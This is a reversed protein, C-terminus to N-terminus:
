TSGHWPRALGPPGRACCARTRGSRGPRGSAAKQRPRGRPSRSRPGANRLRGNARAWARSRASARCSMPRPRARPHRPGSRWAAVRAGARPLPLPLYLYLSGGVLGRAQFGSGPTPPRGPWENLMRPRSSQLPASCRTVGELDLSSDPAPPRRAVLSRRKWFRAPGTGAGSCGVSSRLMGSQEVLCAPRAPGRWVQRRACVRPTGWRGVACGGEDELGGVASAAHSSGRPRGAM